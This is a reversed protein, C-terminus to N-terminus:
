RGAEDILEKVEDNYDRDVLLQEITMHMRYRWYHKPNAPINIREADADVLRVREDISLWDQLSLICLMSPSTLQQSVIDRALWGPLPHPAAGSRYLMSNYFEQTRDWDEDWWQRLTPMDHTSLTCVSRYPNRQLIGFKVKPDKPMSQLELSLIRLENMVWQVCDPVMGLDEACVLMRTAQALIPLKKMAEGYWFDNNRRYYYDNYLRNFAAKDNDWLAEYMFNLQATIRPHFLNPNKRDRVFLVDDVLCYLGDRLWVDKESTKGEFAAEIKRETDYEPKLSYIDDHEHVLYTEIVEETHERFVREVVWRAIFPTTFLHEQFNLGYSQIEERTMALSPQFQGLLGGVCETPIAWIRFFGLVHDIRYADFYQSMNQFRRVWWQCGDAIMRDWNYTPFGWNQGNVSFADPPAGAQSDLHFYEPEHWVDCGNRNVGIPIDGKLIVGRAKAYEHASRMQRDLVFQVYYYFAVEKYKKNTPTSLAVRDAENWQENGTWQAFQCTGNKDRLYCYQAYPVLWHETRKFFEKFEKSQMEKTGNEAFVLQLYETKANNVREYDIQPLANLEERLIEFRDAKLKDKLAPLQRLDAYQPHLAFISICSYPYSDTWTHTSTTDNIPLVQLLRQHTKAVWDIMLKLDGFDGVGFSGESRLSFVPILTGAIKEDCIAFFAQDLAVVRIEGQELPALTLTRNDCTEWIEEGKDSFAVFKFELEDVLKSCIKDNGFEVKGKKKECSAALANGDIDVVWENHNHETMRPAKALDWDGLAEGKGSIALQYGSRLQPARVVLRVARDFTQTPMTGEARRNVCDTFASSYLYTDCPIEHWRDEVVFHQSAKANLDLRHMITKWEARRIGSCGRVSYYYDVHKENKDAVMQCSWTIGDTTSMPVTHDGEKGGVINLLLEEGFVTKYQINFLIQM